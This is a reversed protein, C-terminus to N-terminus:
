KRHHKKSDSLWQQRWDPMQDDTLGKWLGRGKKRADSEAQEFQAQLSHPSRRDAYALGDRALDLNLSDTDTFYLYALLAHDASRTQLPELRLTFERGLARAALERGCSAAQPTGARPMDIGILRVSTEVQEDAVQIHLSGNLSVAVVTCQRRDFRAWDDGDGGAGWHTMLVSLAATLVTVLLTLRIRRRRRLRREVIPDPEPSPRKRRKAGM